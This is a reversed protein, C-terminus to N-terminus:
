IFDLLLTPGLLIFHAAFIFYLLFFGLSLVFWFILSVGLFLDVSIEKSLTLTWLKYFNCPKTLYEQQRRDPHWVNSRVAHRQKKASARVTWSRPAPAAGGRCAEPRDAGPTPRDAVHACSPSRRQVSGSPGCRPDFPGCGPRLLPEEEARKWVTRSRPAPAAGGRCAKSRNATACPTKKETFFGLVRGRSLDRRLPSNWPTAEPRCTV